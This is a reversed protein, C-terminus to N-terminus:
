SKARGFRAVLNRWVKGYAQLDSRGLLLVESYSSRTERCYVAMRIGTQVVNIVSFAIGAGMVGYRPILVWCAGFATAVIALSALFVVRPKGGAAVHIALFNGAPWVITGIMMAYYIRASEVFESGYMLVVLPRIIPLTVVTTLAMLWISNRCLLNTRRTADSQEAAATYPFLVQSVPVAVIKSQQGLGRANRFLGIDADPLKFTKLLMLPLEEAFFNAIMLLYSWFGYEWMQRLLVLVPKRAGAVPVNEPPLLACRFCLFAFACLDAAIVALISGAVGWKLWVVFILLFLVNGLTTIVDSLNMATIRLEGSLIRQLFNNFLFLPVTPLALYILGADIDSWPTFPMRWIALVVVICIASIVAGAAWQVRVIRRSSELKRAVFYACASGLGLNGFRFCFERVLLLLTLVGLGSKGLTRSNIIGVTLGVAVLGVRVVVTQMSSRSFSM